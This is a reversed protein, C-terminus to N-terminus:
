REPSEQIDHFHLPEDGRSRDAIYHQLSFHISRFAIDAWPIDREEFLGVEISEEGNDFEPALLRARFQVHVQHAHLVNVVSLLSGIEVRACAEELSERAAGAQLSEGNELFGAPTTWYGRRPEIARRCLLIRGAWEPVCGVVVRPNQYHITGCHGCVARPRNDGPPILFGVPHGCTPCYKM